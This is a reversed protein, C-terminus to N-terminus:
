RVALLLDALVHGLKEAVANSERQLRKLARVKGPAKLLAMALKAPSLKLDPTMLANFDLPLDEDVTDLIARVTASPIARERGVTCIIQSEMEVADAGTAKWLAQKQEATVAVQEACHFRAPRAGAALLAPELGSAEDVAFVVTGATLDPRLGGAFGSSIVLKPAIERLKARVAAEANRKGMGTVLIEVEPRSAVLRKFAKAEEKVAFCVLV